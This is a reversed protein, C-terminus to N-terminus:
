TGHLIVSSAVCRVQTQSIDPCHSDWCDEVSSRLWEEFNYQWKSLLELLLADVKYKTSKTCVIWLDAFNNETQHSLMMRGCALHQHTFGNDPRDM